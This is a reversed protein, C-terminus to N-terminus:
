VMKEPKRGSLNELIKKQIDISYLLAKGTRMDEFNRSKEFMVQRAQEALYDTMIRWMKTNQIYYAEEKLNLAEADGIPEHNICLRNAKNFEILNEPKILERKFM